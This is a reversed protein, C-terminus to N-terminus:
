SAAPVGLESMEEIVGNLGLILERLDTAAQDLQFSIASVAHAETSDLRRQLMQLRLGAAFLRQLVNDNADRVALAHNRRVDLERSYRDEADALDSRSRSLSHRATVDTAVGDVFLQGGVRRPVARWSVWRTAGDVGQVRIDVEARRGSFVAEVFDGVTCLDEPHAHVEILEPLSQADTVAEGFVAGSNPGFYLWVLSGNPAVRVTFAFVDVLSMAQQLGDTASSVAEPDPVARM